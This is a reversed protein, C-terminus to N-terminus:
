KTRKEIEDNLEKELKLFQEYLDGYKERLQDNYLNDVIKGYRVISVFLENSLAKADTLENMVQRRQLNSKM